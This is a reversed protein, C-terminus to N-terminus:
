NGSPYIQNFIIKWDMDGKAFGNMFNRSYIYYLRGGYEVVPASYLTNEVPKLLFYDLYFRPANNGNFTFETGDLYKYQENKMFSFFLEEYVDTHTDAYEVGKYIFNCRIDTEGNPFHTSKPHALFKAVIENTYKYFYEGNSNDYGLSERQDSKSVGALYITEYLLIDCYDSDSIGNDGASTATLRYRGNAVSSIPITITGKTVDVQIGEAARDWIFSIKAHPSTELELSNVTPANGMNTKASISKRMSIQPKVVAKVTTFVDERGKISLTVTAEKPFSTGTYQPIVINGSNKWIGIQSASAVCKVGLSEARKPYISYKIEHYFNNYLTIQEQDAEIRLEEVEVLCTASANGVSVTVTAYGPAIGKIKVGVADASIIQVTSPNSSVATVKGYAPVLKKIAITATEGDYLDATPNQLEIEPIVVDEIRSNDVRWTTEDVAGNGNFSVTVNQITNRNISFDSLMDEGLYFRYIIDGEKEASKYQAEIQLYTCVLSHYSGQPFVKGQQSKNGPLLRGWNNEFMNFVIGESLATKGPNTVPDSDIADTASEIRNSRFLATKRPMNKLAVSKIDIAVGSNLESFDCKVAVQAICRTLPISIKGNDKLIQQPSKGSMPVSGNQQPLESASSITYVLNEIDSITAAYPMKGTNAVAYVTYEMGSYIEAKIASSSTSYCYTAVDGNENVIYINANKITSAAGAKTSSIGNVTFDIEVNIEKKEGISCNNGNRKEEKSCAFLSLAAIGCAIFTQSRM